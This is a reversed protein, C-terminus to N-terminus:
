EFIFTHTNNEGDIEELVTINVENAEEGREKPKSVEEREIKFSRVIKAEIPIEIKVTKKKEQSESFSPDVAFLILLFTM